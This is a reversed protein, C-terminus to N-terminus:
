PFKRTHVLSIYRSAGVRDIIKRTGGELRDVIVIVAVIECNERQVHDIADIVSQGTTIVDDVIVVRSGNEPANEIFNKTGHRKPEKRVYFGELLRGRLKARMMAAVVIPDAGLTLGGIAVPAVPLAQIADVIADGVAAAGDSSLTVRKCDFYLSESGNSLTIRGPIIALRAILDRLEDSNPM